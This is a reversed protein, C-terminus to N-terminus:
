AKLTLLTSYFRMATGGNANIQDAVAEIEASSRAGLVVHSGVAAFQEALDRGIGRGAGTVIVRKGALDSM